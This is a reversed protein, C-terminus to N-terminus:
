KDKITIESRGFEIKKESNASIITRWINQGKKRIIKESFKGHKYDGYDNFQGEFTVPFPNANSITMAYSESKESTKTKDIEVSVNSATGFPLEVEEDV